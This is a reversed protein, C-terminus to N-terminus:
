RNFLYKITQKLPLIEVWAPNNLSLEIVKLKSLFGLRNTYSYHNTPKSEIVSVLEEDRGEIYKEENSISRITHHKNKSLNKINQLKINWGQSSYNEQLYTLQLTNISKRYEENTIMKEVEFEWEKQDEPYFIGKEKNDDFIKYVSAPDYHLVFPVGAMAPELLSTFSPIPFGELYLDANEIYQNIDRTPPIFILREHAYIKRNPNNLEIGIITFVVHNFKKVIKLAKEYFNYEANPEYKSERGISIISFTSKGTKKLSYSQDVPIPLFFQDQVPINRNESDKLINSERIQLLVDTVPAGLWYTHEAHNLFFVPSKLKQSSFVLSPIVDHPHIHLVIRSFCNEKLTDVIKQAKEIINLKQDYVFLNHEINYQYSKAIESVEQFNQWTSMLYHKSKKDNEIWSFILKSHGGISSIESFLHLTSDEAPEQSAPSDFNLNKLAIKRIISEFCNSTYYGPFNYWASYSVKEIYMLCDNYKKETFLLAAVKLTKLFYKKNELLRSM